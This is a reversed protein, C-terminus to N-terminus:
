MHQMGRCHFEFEIRGVNPSCVRSYRCCNKQIGHPMTPKQTEEKMYKMWNKRATERERKMFQWINGYSPMSYRM